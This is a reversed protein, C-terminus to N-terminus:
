WAKKERKPHRAVHPLYVVTFLITGILIFASFIGLDRLATAKLPVLALFAGVTTVNGVVLPAIIERLTEKISPTHDLHAILHLPYNVAIGLIISSIGVVILSVDSHVVSLMALAFLMGWSVSIVILTLNRGSRFVSVLLLSILFIAIVISIM